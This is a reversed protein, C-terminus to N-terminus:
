LRLNRAWFDSGAEDEEQIDENLFELLNDRVHLPNQTDLNVSLRPIVSNKFKLYLNKVAPPEYIIYFSNFEKYLFFREGFRVGADMIQFIEEEPEIFERILAIFGALIIIISFLFNGTIISYYLLGGGLIVGGVIWQWDKKYKDFEKIKWEFLVRGYDKEPNYIESM